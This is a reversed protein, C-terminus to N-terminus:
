FRQTHKTTKRILAMEPQLEVYWFPQYKAHTDLYEQIQQDSWNEYRVGMVLDSVVNTKEICEEADVDRFRYMRYIDNMHYVKLTWKPFRWVINNIHYMKPKTDKCAEKWDNPTKLPQGIVFRSELWHNDYDQADKRAIGLIIEIDEKRKWAPTCDPIYLTKRNLRNLVAIIVGGAFVSGRTALQKETPYERVSMGNHDYWNNYRAYEEDTPGKYM